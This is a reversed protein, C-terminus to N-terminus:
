WEVQGGPLKARAMALSEPPLGALEALRLATENNELVFDLVAGLFEPEALRARLEDQGCGTLAVFRPLLDEDAAIMAVAQLALAEAADRGLTPPKPPM